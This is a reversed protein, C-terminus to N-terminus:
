LYCRNTTNSAFGEIDLEESDFIVQRIQRSECFAKAENLEREPFSCSKASVAIAKDGLAEKAAFLLFTSDVGGSFGVAVSGYDRLLAKLEEYKKLQETTAEM